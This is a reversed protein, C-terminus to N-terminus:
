LHMTNKNKQICKTKIKRWSANLMKRNFTCMQTHTISKDKNINESFRSGTTQNRNYNSSLVQSNDGRGKEKKELIEIVHVSKMPQTGM